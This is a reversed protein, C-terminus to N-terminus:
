GDALGLVRDVASRVAEEPSKEGPEAVLEEGVEIRGGRAVEAYAGVCGQRGLPGLDIRHHEILSRLVHPDAPLEEHARTPVVCRPTPLAVTLELGSRGRLRGGLLGDEGFGDDAQGDDLLLNPRFRRVDWDSGPRIPRVVANFVHVTRGLVAIRPV